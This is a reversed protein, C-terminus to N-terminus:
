MGCSFVNKQKQDGVFGVCLVRFSKTSWEFELTTINSDFTENTLVTKGKTTTHRSYGFEVTFRDINCTCLEINLDTCCIWNIFM